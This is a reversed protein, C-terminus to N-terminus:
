YNKIISILRKLKIKKFFGIEKLEVGYSYLGGKSEVRKIIGEFVYVNHGHFIFRILVDDDINFEIDSEFAVGGISIDTVAARGSKQPASLSEVNLLVLTAAREYKRVKRKKEKKEEKDM